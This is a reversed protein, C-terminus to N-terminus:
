KHSRSALPPALLPVDTVLKCLERELIALKADLHSVDMVGVATIAFIAPHAIIRKALGAVADNSDDRLFTVNKTAIPMFASPTSLIERVKWEVSTFSDNIMCVDVGWTNPQIPLNGPLRLATLVERITFYDICTSPTSLNFLLQVPVYDSVATKLADFIRRSAQEPTCESTGGLGPLCLLEMRSGKKRLCKELTTAFKIPFGFIFVRTPPNPGKPTADLKGKIATHVKEADHLAKSVGELRDLITQRQHGVIDGELATRLSDREEELAKICVLIARHQVLLGRYDATLANQAPPAPTHASATKEAITFRQMEALLRRAHPKKMGVDKILDMEEATTLDAFCEYGEDTLPREYRQLGLLSLLEILSPGNKAM